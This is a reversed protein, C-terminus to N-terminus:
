GGQRLLNQCSVDMVDELIVRSSLFTVEYFQISLRVGSRMKLEQIQRDTLVFQPEQFAQLIPFFVREGM